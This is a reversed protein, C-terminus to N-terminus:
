EFNDLWNNYLKDIDNDHKVSIEKELKSLKDYKNELKQYEDFLEQMNQNMINEQIILEQELKKQNTINSALYLIKSVNGKTDFIPTYQNILWIKKNTSKNIRQATIEKPEGKKISDWIKLFDEHDKKDIFELINKGIMKEKQYGIIKQHIENSDIFEGEATYEARLITNDIGSIIGNLEEEKQKTENLLIKTKEELKKEETVDIGFYLVEVVEEKHNKIPTYNNMLFIKEGTNKNTREVVSKQAKGKIVENWIFNFEEKEKEPIFNLINKGQMEEIKYGMIEQHFNNSDIFSGDSKYKARMLTNDVASIITELQDEKSKSELLLESALEEALKQETIDIALYLIRIIKGNADSVPTYQNLLWIDANTKKNKRKVSIQANNGNKITEWINKLEEKEEKPIIEFINKGIIEKEDLGLTQKYIKNADLIDGDLSLGARLTTSDIGKLIGRTKIENERAEHLLKNAKQESNKQESIDIALYLIKIIKGKDDEIPTYQNLLWIDNGTQFNHRKVTLQELNGKRVNNWTKLFDDKENESVFELINKGKMEEINYGFTTQHIENASIFKGDPSYEARMLTQDVASFLGKLEIEKEQTDILLKSIKEESIKQETIDIALYLIQILKGKDDFIPNYQNILWIDRNTSKNLRKVILEKANGSQIQKWFSKFSEKEDKDEIFELISKGLMEEKNYGLIKTHIDNANQFIGEPTYEARLITRDLGTLIGELKLEKERADTLLNNAKEEALKQETIDIALYLIKIVEGKDDKIPTYQNLLWLDIGTQQNKRKVTIQYPKGSAVESWMSKFNAREEEQIFELINKGKMKEIDYGMVRRHVMNSNIFTGNPTYEARMLTQDVGSLIGRMEIENKRAVEHAKSVEQMTEQLAKERNALEDSQKQSEKLLEITKENIKVSELTTAISRSLSEAFEIEYKKLPKLSAIEIVGMLGSDTLLPLLILSNPTADGLGSEIEIYEEPIDNLVVISQDTAVTGILGEGFKIKKTNHKKRDYAFAALLDLYLYDEDEKVIFLGGISANVYNVFSKIVEDSLKNLDNAYKRMIESFMNYGKNAWEKQQDEIKRIEAIKNSEILEETLAAISTFITDKKDKEKELAIDYNKNKLEKIYFNIKKNKNNIDKIFLILPNKTINQNIDNEEIFKGSSLKKLLTKLTFNSKIDNGFFLYSLFSFVLIFIFFNTFAIIRLNTSSVDIQNINNKFISNNNKRLNELTLLIDVYAETEHDFIRSINQLNIYEKKYESFIEYIVNQFKQYESNLQDILMNEDYSSTIFSYQKIYFNVSDSTEEFSNQIDIFDELKEFSIHNHVIFNNVITQIKYNINNKKLYVQTFYYKKSIIKKKHNSFIILLSSLFLIAVIGLITIKLKVSINKIM